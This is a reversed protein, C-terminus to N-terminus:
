DKLIGLAASLNSTTDFTVGGTTTLVGYLATGSAISFVKGIGDLTYLTHAGLGSDGGGLAYVGILTDVDASAISPAASM